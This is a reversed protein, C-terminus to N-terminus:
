KTFKFSSIINNFVKNYNKRIASDDASDANSVFIDESIMYQLNGHSFSLYKTKGFEPLNLTQMFANEGSVRGAPQLTKAIYKETISKESDPICIITIDLIAGSTLGSVPYGAYGFEQPYKQSEFRAEGIQYSSFDNSKDNKCQVLIKAVSSESYTTNEEAIWGKPTQLKFGYYKNEILYSNIKGSIFYRYLFIGLFLVFLVIITIVGIRIVKALKLVKKRKKAM